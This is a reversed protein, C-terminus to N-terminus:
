TESSWNPSRVTSGIIVEAVWCVWFNLIQLDLTPRTDIKIEIMGSNTVPAIVWDDHSLGKACSIPPKPQVEAKGDQSPEVAPHFAQLGNRMWGKGWLHPKLSPILFNVKCRRSCSSGRSGGGCRALADKTLNHWPALHMKLKPNTSRGVQSHDTQWPQQAGADWAPESGECDLQCLGAFFVYFWSQAPNTAIDINEGKWALHLRPSAQFYFLIISTKM